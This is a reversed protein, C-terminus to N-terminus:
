KKAPPKRKPAAKKAPPKRKPAAKKGYIGKAKMKENVSKSYPVWQGLKGRKLANERRREAPTLSDRVEKPLYRGGPGAYGWDEKQWKKLSNNPDRKGVYGGGRRKYENVALMAKRANWKGAPGGKGGKLWKAKVSAWLKPNDKVAVSM